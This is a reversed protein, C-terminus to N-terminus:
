PLTNPICKVKKDLPTCKNKICKSGGSYEIVPMEKSKCLKYQNEGENPYFAYGECGAGGHYSNFKNFSGHSCERNRIICDSDVKCYMIDEFYPLLSQEAKQVTIQLGDENYAEGTPINYKHDIVIYYGMGSPTESYNYKTSDFFASYITKPMFKAIYKAFPSYDGLGKEAPIYKFGKDYNFTLFYVTKSEKATYYKCAFFGTISLIAIIIIVILTVFLSKKMKNQWIRGV